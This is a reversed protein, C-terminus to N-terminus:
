ANCYEAQLIADGTIGVEFLKCTDSAASLPEGHLKLVVPWQLQAHVRQKLTAIREYDHVRVAVTQQVQSSGNRRIVIIVQATAHLDHDLVASPCQFTRSCNLHSTRVTRHQKLQRMIMSTVVKHGLQTRPALAHQQYRQFDDFALNEASQLNAKEVQELNM